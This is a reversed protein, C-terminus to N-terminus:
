PAEEDEEVEDVGNGEEPLALLSLQAQLPQNQQSTSELLEQTEQLERHVL